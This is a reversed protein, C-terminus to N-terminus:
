ILNFIEKDMNNIKLTLKIIESQKILNECNTEINFIMSIIIEQSVNEINEFYDNLHSKSDNSQERNEKFNIFYKVFDILIPTRIIKFINLYETIIMNQTYKIKLWAKDYENGKKKEIIQFASILCFLSIIEEKKMNNIKNIKIKLLNNKITISIYPSM